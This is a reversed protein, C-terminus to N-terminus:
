RMCMTYLLMNQYSMYFYLKLVMFIYLLHLWSEKVYIAHIFAVCLISGGIFHIIALHYFWVCYTKDRIPSFLLDFINM